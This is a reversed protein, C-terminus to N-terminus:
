RERYVRGSYWFPKIVQKNNDNLYPKVYKHENTYINTNQTITYAKDCADAMSHAYVRYNLGFYKVSYGKCILNDKRLELMRLRKMM